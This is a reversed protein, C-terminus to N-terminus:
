KNRRNQVQECLDLKGLFSLITCASWITRLKTFFSNMMLIDQVGRNKLENIVAPWFKAGGTAVFHNIVACQNTRALAYIM